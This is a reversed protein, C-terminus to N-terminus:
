QITLDGVNQLTGGNVTLKHITEDFGGLALVGAINLTIAATNAIQNDALWEVTDFSGLGDGIVLNGAIANVGATKNLRLRGANVRTLGTYTNASSGSFQLVGGGLKTLGAAGSLVGQFNM